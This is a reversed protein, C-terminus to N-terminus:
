CGAATLAQGLPVMRLLNKTLDSGLYTTIADKASEDGNLGSTVLDSAGQLFEVSAKADPDYPELARMAAVQDAFSGLSGVPLDKWAAVNPQKPLQVVLQWNVNLSAFAEKVATCDSLKGASKAPAATSGPSPAATAAPSGSPSTSKTSSKTSPNSSCGALGVVIAAIVLPRQIM